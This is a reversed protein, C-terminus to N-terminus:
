ACRHRTSVSIDGVGENIDFEFPALGRPDLAYIAINNRNAIDYVEQLDGIMEAQQLVARPGRRRRRGAFQRAPNGLGPMSAIPDRLQPPLYNTYGESVLIM